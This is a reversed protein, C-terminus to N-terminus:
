TLKHYPTKSCPPLAYSCRGSFFEVVSKVRWQGHGLRLLFNFIAVLLKNLSQFLRLSLRHQTDHVCLVWDCLFAGHVTEKACELQCPFQCVLQIVKLCVPVGKRFFRLPIGSKIPIATYYKLVYASYKNSVTIPHKTPWALRVSPM